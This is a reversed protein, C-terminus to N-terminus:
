STCSTKREPIQKKILEQWMGEENCLKFLCKILRYKMKYSDNQWFFRSRFYDIKKLIGRPVEFFFIMFMPLSSLLSNLLVLRGGYSLMKGKWNSLKKELIDEILKWDKNNFKRFHM